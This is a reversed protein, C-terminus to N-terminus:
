SIEDDAEHELNVVFLIPLGLDRIKALVGHLAAQDSVSGGLLTDEGIYKMNFGDFWDAWRQDLHGRVRIRYFDTQIKM